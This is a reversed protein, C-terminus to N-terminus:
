QKNTTGKWQECVSGKNRRAELADSLWKLNQQDTASHKIRLNAQTFTALFSSVLEADCKPDSLALKM